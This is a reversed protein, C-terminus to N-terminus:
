RRVLAAYPRVLRNTWRDEYLDTTGKFSFLVVLICCRSWSFPLTLSSKSSALWVDDDDDHPPNTEKKRENETTGIFTNTITHINTLNANAGDERVM